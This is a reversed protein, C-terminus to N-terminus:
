ARAGDLRHVRAEKGEEAQESKAHVNKDDGVVQQGHEHAPLDHPQAGVQQDTEPIALGAARLAAMLAKMVVRIPSTNMSNPM